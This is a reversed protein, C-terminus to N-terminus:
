LYPRVQAAGHLQVALEAATSLVPVNDGALEELVPIMTGGLATPSAM